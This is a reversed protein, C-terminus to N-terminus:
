AISFGSSFFQSWPDDVSIIVDLLNPADQIIGDTFLEMM